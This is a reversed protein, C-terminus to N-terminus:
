AKPDTTGGRHEGYDSGRDLGQIIQQSDVPM